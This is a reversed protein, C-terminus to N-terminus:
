LTSRYRTGEQVNPILNNSQSAFQRNSQVKAHIRYRHSKQTNNMVTRLNKHIIRSLCVFTQCICSVCVCSNVSVGGFAARGEITTCTLRTRFFSHKECIYLTCVSLHVHAHVDICLHKCAHMYSTYIHICAYIHSYSHTCTHTYIAHM